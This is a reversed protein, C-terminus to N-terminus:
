GKKMFVLGPLLEVGSCLEIPVPWSFLFKWSLSTVGVDDTVSCVYFILFKGSSLLTTKDRQWIRVSDWKVKSPLGKEQSPCQPM